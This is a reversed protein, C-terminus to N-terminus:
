QHRESGIRFTCATAWCRAATTSPSLGKRRPAAPRTPSPRPPPSTIELPRPTRAPPSASVPPVAPVPSSRRSCSGILCSNTSSNMSSIAPMWWVVALDYLRKNSTPYLCCVGPVGGYAHHHRHHVHRKFWVALKNDCTLIFAHVWSSSPFYCARAQIAAM